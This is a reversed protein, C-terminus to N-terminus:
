YLVLFGSSIAATAAFSWPAVGAISGKEATLADTRDYLQWSLTGGRNWGTGETWVLITNGNSAISLRPHKHSKAPGPASIPTAKPDTLSEFYIQGSTEWTGEVKGDREAFAMSSMPCANINWTDLKHDSFTRAHDLSTLLHIDRHVNQTASRYLARLVDNSDSYMAMGCCGCAGTSQDTAAREGTFTQGDDSSTTIWVQRGAEGPPAGPAKAHWAVYVDGTRDAAITGGGDLGFTKIMLNREPEFATRTDNLRTYLLPAGAQGSEPNPVGKPEAESSGNWAVHLRRNRGIAMQGGRISGLAIATGPRSNVRLPPSWTHGADSSDVYYLDGHAPNGSYYLLHLTGADDTLLQPQIGGNPVRQVSVDLKDPDKPPSGVALALFCSVLLLRTIWCVPPMFM